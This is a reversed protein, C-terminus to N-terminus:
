LFQFFTSIRSLYTHKDHVIHMLDIISDRRDGNAFELYMDFLSATDDSYILAGDFIDNARLNNTVGMHGYSINKFLRCPPYGNDVQWKGQIAPALKSKSVISRAMDSSVPKKWPDVFKISMGTDVCRNFFPRLQLGNQYLGTFDGYTGIWVCRDLRNLDLSFDFEDPLIDTAWPTFVTTIGNDKSVMTYKNLWEFQLCKDIAEQHLTQIMLVDCGSDIYKHPDANHFIYKSSNIVPMNDMQGSFAFFLCNDFNSDSIDDDDTLWLVDYGLSKYARMFGEYVYSNTHTHLPYGWLIVKKFIM